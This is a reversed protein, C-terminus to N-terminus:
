ITCDIEGEFVKAWTGSQVIESDDREFLHLVGGDMEVQAVNNCLGKVRAAVFSATAGTGCAATIGAGREWVRMRLHNPAIVQVFEVNVRQPFLPHHEIAPGLIALDVRMVNDVFFVIHPNGVNVAVGAPVNIGNIMVNNTDCNQALPIQQWQRRPLGMVVSAINDDQKQIPFLGGATELVAKGGILGAVCRAANGCMGAASGDANLIDMRVDAHADSPPLLTIVQDCGVGFRRDALFRAQTPTLHQGSARHDLVVFDNGLGHM